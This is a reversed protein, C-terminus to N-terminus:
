GSAETTDDHALMEVGRKTQKDLPMFFGLTTHSVKLNRGPDNNGRWELKGKFVWSACDHPYFAFKQQPPWKGSGSGPELFEQWPFVYQEAPWLMYYTKYSKLGAGCPGAKCNTDCSFKWYARWGGQLALWMQDKSSQKTPGKCKIIYWHIELFLKKTLLLITITFSAKLLDLLFMAPM